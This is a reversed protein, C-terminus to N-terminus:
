QWGFEALSNDDDVFSGVMEKPNGETAARVIAQAGLVPDKLGRNGNFNTRCYGPDVAVALIGEKALTVADVATIMNVATKSSRYVPLAFANVNYPSSPSLAIGIQGLGSSVNVIRRDPYTSARLLPLFTATMVAVGFVNLEFVARYSERLGLTPDAPRSIGANNILIDLSGFRDTVEQAAARISDDDTVDLVLPTFAATDVTSSKSQLEQIAAEAKERSRAAMLLHYRGTNALHTAAAFGLGQNAGTILVLAKTAAM